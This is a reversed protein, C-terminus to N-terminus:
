FRVSLGGGVGWDLGSASIGKIASVDLQVDPNILYTFGGDVAMLFDGGPADPGVGSLEVFGRLSDSLPYGVSAAFLGQAFRSGDEDEPLIAGANFGLSWDGGLEFDALLKAAPTVTQARFPQSGTPLDLTVLVGVSPDGEVLNAKFGLSVDSLGRDRQNAESGDDLLVPITQQTLGDGELRLETDPGTGVRLLTPTLHAGSGDRGREFAYGTEIQVVGSGVTVSSEAIDPRDTVLPEREDDDAWSPTAAALLLLLVLLRLLKV